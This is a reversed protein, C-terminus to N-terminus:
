AMKVFFPCYVINSEMNGRSWHNFAVTKLDSLVADSYM